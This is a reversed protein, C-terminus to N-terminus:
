QASDIPRQPRYGCGQLSSHERSAVKALRARTYRQLFIPYLNILVNGATLYLAWGTWGIAFAFAASQAGLVLLVLHSRESLETRLRFARAYARNRIIRFDPVRRRRWRNALDGDPVLLRFWRIGLREYLRGNREFARIRYYSAPVWWAALAVALCAALIPLPPLLAGTPYDYPRLPGWVYLWFMLLPGLWGGAMIAFPIRNFGSTENAFAEPSAHDGTGDIRRSGV